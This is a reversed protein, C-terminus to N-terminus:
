ILQDVAHTYLVEQVESFTGLGIVKTIKTTSDEADGDLGGRDGVQGIKSSCSEM